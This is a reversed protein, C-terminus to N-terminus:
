LSYKHLNNNTTHFKTAEQKPDGYISAFGISNPDSSSSDIEGWKDDRLPTFPYCRHLTVATAPECLVLEFPIEHRIDMEIKDCVHFPM